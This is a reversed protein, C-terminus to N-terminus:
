NINTFASVTMSISRTARRVNVISDGGNNKFTPVTYNADIFLTVKRMGRAHEVETHDHRKTSDIHAQSM